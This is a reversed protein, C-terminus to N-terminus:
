IQLYQLGNKACLRVTKDLRSGKHEKEIPPAEEGALMNVYNSALGM